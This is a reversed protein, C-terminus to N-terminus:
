PRGFSGCGLAYEEFRGAVIAERAGEVLRHLFRLNHAACLMRGLPEATV